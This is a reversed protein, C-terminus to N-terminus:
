FDFSLGVYVKLDNKDIDDDVQSQYEHLLGAVLSLNMEEDLLANWEASTVARFEGTDELDPYITSSAVIRQNDSVQWTLDGGLLAEPRIDDNDSGWEKIAGIGARLGLKFKEEDILQYGVGVHGGLRHDWSQFEDYDYRADAFIFWKSDPILWDNRVGATFRNENRDGDRSGFFYAADFTTITQKTERRTTIKTTLSQSDTNGFSGAGAFTFRSKWEPASEAVPPAQEDPESDAPPQAAEAEVQEAAAEMEATTVVSAVQEAPIVMRGFLPHDLTLSQDNRAVLTGNLIDGSVLTIQDALVSSSAALSLLTLTFMRFGSLAIVGLFRRSNAIM